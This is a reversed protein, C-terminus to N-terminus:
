QKRTFTDMMLAIDIAETAPCPNPINGLFYQVVEAIMPEQIHAPHIFDFHQPAKGNQQLVIRNGFFPFGISGESGIIECWERPEIGTCNFNWQGNFLINNAFLAQGSVMDDAEYLGSQNLAFGHLEIPAGFYHYLLDLQHPALDHFYGGGSLAPNTRWNEETNAVLSPKPANFTQLNVMRITGIAAEDLLTKVQKFMPVARRYHAITLKVELNEATYAMRKCADADIAMPKEVYVPKGAQLAAKTYQEHFAPPTAVYIANVNPDNILADADSYWVPVGHRHAYDEAKAADRRMVATLVSNPVKNFAPGSKIETVDGCGIIGWSITSDSM